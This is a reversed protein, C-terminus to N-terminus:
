FVVDSSHYLDAAAVLMSELTDAQNSNTEQLYAAPSYPQAAEILSGEASNDDTGNFSSDNETMVCDTANYLGAATCLVEELSKNTNAENCEETAIASANYLGAATALDEMLNDSEFRSDETVFDSPNYSKAARAIEYDLMEWNATEATKGSFEESAPVTYSALVVQNKESVKKGSRLFSTRAMVENSLQYVMQKIFDTKYHSAVPQANSLSGAAILICALMLNRFQNRSPNMKTRM